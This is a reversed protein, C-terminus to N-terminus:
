IQNKESWPASRPILLLLFYLWYIRNSQFYLWSCLKGLESPQMTMSSINWNKWCRSILATEFQLARCTPQGNFCLHSFFENRDDLASLICVDPLSSQLELQLLICTRPKSLMQFCLDKPEARAGLSSGFLFGIRRLNKASSSFSHLLPTLSSSFTISDLARQALTQQAKSGKAAADSWLYTDPDLEKKSKFGSKSKHM